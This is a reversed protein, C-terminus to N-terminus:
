KARFATLAQERTDKIELVQDLRTIQFVERIEPAMRCLRLKGKKSKVKRDLALLKGIVASSCFQVKQFDLVLYKCGDRDVLGLLEEGLAQVDPESLIKAQVFSVVTIGDVVTVQIQRYKKGAPPPTDAATNCSTVSCALLGVITAALSGLLLRVLAQRNARSTPRDQLSRSTSTPLTASPASLCTAVHRLRSIAHHPDFASAM